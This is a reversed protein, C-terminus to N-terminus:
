GPCESALLEAQHRAKSRLAELAANSAKALDEDAWKKQLRLKECHQKHAASTRAAQEDAKQDKAERAHREEELKHLLAKQRELERVTAASQQAEPAAPAQAPLVVASGNVCPESTYTVKGEVTCKVIRQTQAAASACLASLVVFQILSAM